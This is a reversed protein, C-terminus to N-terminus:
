KTVDNGERPITPTYSRNIVADPLCTHLHLLNRLQTVYYILVMPLVLSLFNIPTEYSFWNKYIYIYGTRIFVSYRISFGPRLIWSFNVWIMIVRDSTHRISHMLVLIDFASIYPDHPDSPLKWVIVIVLIWINCKVLDVILILQSNLNFMPGSWGLWGHRLGDM